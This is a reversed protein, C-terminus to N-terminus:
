VGSGEEGNNAYSRKVNIRINIRLVTQIIELKEEKQFHIFDICFLRPTCLLFFHLPCQCVELGLGFIKLHGRPNKKKSM